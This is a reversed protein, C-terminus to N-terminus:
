SGGDGQRVWEENFHAYKICSRMPRGQADTKVNRGNLTYSYSVHLTGDKAQIISPYSAHSTDPSNPDGYELHRTWKWTKGEDDSISIALSHRGRETDNYVLAWHGNRLRLVEAGSGPNPIDTDVVPSWTMGNDPSTSMLLRKPPPGNDRMYAVLTGDKKRVLSPQVGGLSVLPQSATWTAGWDDTIAMISFDFGDSYLPVILRKGDLVFPHARTMWGMRSFYKDAANKRREALYAPARARFEPPLKSINAEDVDCHKAVIDAFEPGPKLILVESTDWQPAGSGQYSSSIKYRCLATHWENAIIAQWILWLRGRPDIVMCPNTDPFGPTDAMLFRPGWRKAGKRKRAGEVKVDDARREGSGNYWCVLLDGNPCEVICSGHNHWHEPPFILEAEYFPAARSQSPSTRAGM